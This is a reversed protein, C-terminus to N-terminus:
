SKESQLKENLEALKLEIELLKEQVNLESQDIQVGILKGTILILPFLSVLIIYIRDTGSDNTSIMLLVAIFLIIGIYGIYAILKPQIRMNVRGTVLIYARIGTIALAVICMFGIAVKLPFSTESGSSFSIAVFVIALIGIAVSIGMTIRQVLTLKRNIMEQLRENYKERYEPTFQQSAILKDRFDNQRNM